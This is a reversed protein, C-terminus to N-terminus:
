FIANGIIDQIEDKTAKRPWAGVWDSGIPWFVPRM